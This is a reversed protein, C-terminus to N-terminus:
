PKVWAQRSSECDSDCYYFGSKMLFGMAEAKFECLNWGGGGAEAERASPSFAHAM